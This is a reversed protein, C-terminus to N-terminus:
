PNLSAQKIVEAPLTEPAPSFQLRKIGSLPIINLHGDAEIVLRDTKMADNLKGMLDYHDKVQKPFTFTESTGDLYHIVLFRSAAM